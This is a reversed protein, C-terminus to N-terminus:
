PCGAGWLALYCSFDSLTVGDGGTGPLCSGDATIDARARGAGWDALYCSFDSLTVQGDPFASCDGDAAIDAPNCGVCIDPVGDANVDAVAGQAIEYADPFANGNCNPLEPNAAMIMAALYSADSGLPDPDTIGNSDADNPNALWADLDTLTFNGDGDFDGIGEPVGTMPPPGPLVEVDWSVSVSHRLQLQDREGQPVNGVERNIHYRTQFEFLGPAMTGGLSGTRGDTRSGDTNVILERTSKRFAPYLGDPGRDGVAILLNSTHIQPTLPPISASVPNQSDVILGDGVPTFRVWRAIRFVLFGDGSLTAHTGATMPLDSASDVFLQAQVNLSFRTQGQGASSAVLVSRMRDGAANPVINEERFDNLRILGPTIEFTGPDILGFDSATGSRIITGPTQGDTIQWSAHYSCDTSTSVPYVAPLDPETGAVASAVTASSAILAISRM